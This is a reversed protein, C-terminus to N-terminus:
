AQSGAPRAEQQRVAAHHREAIRRVSTLMVEFMVSRAVAAARESQGVEAPILGLERAVMQDVSCAYAELFTTACDDGLRRLVALAQVLRARTADEATIAWGRGAVIRDVEPGAAAIEQETLGADVPESGAAEAVRDYLTPLGTEDDDVAKLVQRVSSLNFGGVGTLARIFRLRRLHREGYVAQNRATPTGPPLLEARLYFKITAVPVGSLRSLASIRM